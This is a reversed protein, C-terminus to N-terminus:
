KGDLGLVEKRYYRLRPLFDLYESQRKVEVLVRREADHECLLAGTRLIEHAIRPPVRELDLIDAGLSPLLDQLNNQVRVREWFASVTDLEAPLIIAVDIDSNPRFSGTARSGFLYAAALTKEQAFYHNLVALIETNNYPERTESM